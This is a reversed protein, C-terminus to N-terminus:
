GVDVLQLVAPDVAGADDLRRHALEVVPDPRVDEVDAAPGTEVERPERRRRAGDDPHLRVRREHDPGTAPDSGKGRYADHLRGRLGRGEPLRAHVDRM